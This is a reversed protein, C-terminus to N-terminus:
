PTFEVFLIDFYEMVKVNTQQIISTILNNLSSKNLPEYYVLCDPNKTFNRLLFDSLTDVYFVQDVGFMEVAVDAGIDFLSRIFVM